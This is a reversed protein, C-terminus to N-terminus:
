MKTKLRYELLVLTNLQNCGNSLMVNKMPKNKITTIGVYTKAHFDIQLRYLGLKHLLAGYGIGKYNPHVGIWFMRGEQDTNPEIHPLVIGVPIGDVIYVTFMEHYQSPLEVKMSQLFKKSEGKDVDMITALLRISRDEFPLWVEYHAKDITIENILQSTYLVREGIIRMKERTKNLQNFLQNTCELTVRKYGYTHATSFLEIILHDVKSIEKPAGHFVELMIQEDNKLVHIDHEKLEQILSNM